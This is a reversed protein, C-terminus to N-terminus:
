IKKFKFEYESPNLHSNEIMLLLMVYISFRPSCHVNASPKNDHRCKSMMTSAELHLNGAESEALWFGYSLGVNTLMLKLM